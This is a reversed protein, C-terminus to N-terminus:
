MNHALNFGTTRVSAPYIPSCAAPILGLVWGVLGLLLGHLVWAAALGQPRLGYQLVPAIIGGGIVFVSISSVLRPLGRDSAAGAALQTLVCVLLNVVLMGRTLPVPIGLSTSMQAPVWTTLTYFSCSVWAEFLFQLLVGAWYWRLLMVFPLGAWWSGAAAPASLTQQQDPKSTKPTHHPWKSSRRGSSSGTV